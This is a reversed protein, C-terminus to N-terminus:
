SDQYTLEISREMGGMGERMGREEGERRRGDGYGERWGEMRRDTTRLGMVSIGEGGGLGFGWGWWGRGRREGKWGRM